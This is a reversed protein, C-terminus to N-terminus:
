NLDDLLGNSLKEKKTSKDMDIELKGGTEM